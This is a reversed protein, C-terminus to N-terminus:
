TAAPATAEVAAAPVKVRPIFTPITISATDSTPPPEAPYRCQCPLWWAELQAVCVRFAVATARSAVSKYLSLALRAQRVLRAPQDGMAAVLLHNLLIALLIREIGLDRHQPASALFKAQAPRGLGEFRQEFVIPAKAFAHKTFLALGNGGDSRALCM